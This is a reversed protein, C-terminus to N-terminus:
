LQQIKELYSNLDAAQNERSFEEVGKWSFSLEKKILKKLLAAIKKVNKGYITVGSDTQKIVRAAEGDEPVVALIPKKFRLYEYFKGGITYKANPWRDDLIICLVDLSQLITLCEHHNKYGWQHVQDSIQYKDALDSIDCVSTGIHHFHIEINEKKLLGIAEFILDPRNLHSYISGSFGINLQGSDTLRIPKLDRFDEDDFGNPLLLVQKKEFEAVHRFYDDLPAQYASIIYKIDQITRIERKRDLVVHLITPYIKYPNITWPDRLDLVVPCQTYNTLAAALIAMSYPPSSLIIVDYTDNQIEAVIQKRATKNWNMRSDTVHFLASLWRQWYGSKSLFPIRTRLSGVSAAKTTRIIKTSEPIEDLLSDDRPSSSEHENAIVTFEWEYQSLYKILKLWRQVGGGGTPPFYYSVVLGRKAM